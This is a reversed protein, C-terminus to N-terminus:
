RRAGAAVGFTSKMLDAISSDAFSECDYDMVLCDNFREILAHEICFILFLYFYFFMM